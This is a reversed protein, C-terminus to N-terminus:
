KSEKIAKLLDNIDAREKYNEDYHRYIVKGDQGIVYTAPVPLTYNGEGNNEDLNINWIKYKNRTKKDLEFDVDYLKMLENSNDSIIPFKAKSKKQMKTTFEYLEPTVALVEAGMDKITGYNEELQALYKNCYGCWEGRYFVLVLPGNDLYNDLNYTMERADMFKFKPAEDGVKIGRNSEKAAKAEKEMQAEDVEINMEEETKKNNMEEEDVGEELAKIEKAKKELLQLEIKEKDSPEAKREQALIPLAFLLILVISLYRM